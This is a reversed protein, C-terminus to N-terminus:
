PDASLAPLKYSLGLNATLQKDVNGLYEPKNAYRIIVSGSSQDNVKQTLTATGVLRNERVLQESSWRYRIEIDVRSRQAGAFYAGIGAAPEVAYSGPLTTRRTATPLTFDYASSQSADATLWLRLGSAISPLVGPQELYGRYCDPTLTARGTTSACYAHAGNLSVPSFEWRVTATAQRPGILPQRLNYRATGNLQPQNNLLNELQDLHHAVLLARQANEVGADATAAAEVVAEIRARIADAFCTLPADVPSRGCARAQAVVDTERMLARFAAEQQDNQGELPALVARTLSDIEMASSRFSRGWARSEANISGGLTVDALDNLTKGLSDTLTSRRSEPIAALLAENIRPQTSVASLQLTGPFQWVPGTADFNKQFDIGRGAGAYGPISLASALEPLFDKIGSAAGGASPESGTPKAAVGDRIARTTATRAAMAAQKTHKKLPEYTRQFCAEASQGPNCRSAQARVVTPMAISPLLASACVTALRIRTSM